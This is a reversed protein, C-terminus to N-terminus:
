SRGNCTGNCVCLCVGGPCVYLQICAVPRELTSAFDEWREQQEYLRDLARFADVEGHGYEGLIDNYAAIADDASELKNLMRAHSKIPARTIDVLPKGDKKSLKVSVTQM